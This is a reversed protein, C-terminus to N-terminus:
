ELKKPINKEHHNWWMEGDFRWTKVMNREGNLHHQVERFSLEAAPGRQDEGRGGRPETGLRVGRCVLVTASSRIPAPRLRILDSKFIINIMKKPFVM